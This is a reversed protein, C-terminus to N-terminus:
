SKEGDEDRKVSYRETIVRRIKAAIGKGIGKVNRLDEETASFINEVSEFAELMRRALTSEVNPLGAVVYEQQEKLSLPKKEARM